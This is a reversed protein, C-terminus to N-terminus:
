GTPYIFHSFAPLETFILRVAAWWEEWDAGGSGHIHGDFVPFNSIFTYLLSCKQIVFHAKAECLDKQWLYLM